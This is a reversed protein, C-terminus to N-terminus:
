PEEEFTSAQQDGQPEQARSSSPVHSLGLGWIRGSLKQQQPTSVRQSTFDLLLRFTLHKQTSALSPRRPHSTVKTTRPPNRAPEQASSGDGSRRLWSSVVSSSTIPSGNSSHRSQQWEGKAWGSWVGQQGHLQCRQPHKPSISLCVALFTQLSHFACSQQLIQVRPFYSSFGPASPFPFM